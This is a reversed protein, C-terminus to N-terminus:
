ESRKKIWHWIRWIRWIRGAAIGEGEQGGEPLSTQKSAPGFGREELACVLTEDVEPLVCSNPQSKMRLGRFHSKM